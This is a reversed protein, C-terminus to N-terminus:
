AAKPLPEPEFTDTWEASPTASVTTSQGLLTCIGTMLMAGAGLLALTGDVVSSMDMM